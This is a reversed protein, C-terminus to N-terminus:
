EYTEVVKSKKNIRRIEITVPHKKAYKHAFYNSTSCVILLEGINEGEIGPIYLAQLLM